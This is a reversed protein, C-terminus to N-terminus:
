ASKRGDMPVDLRMPWDRGMGTVVATGCGCGGGGLREVEALYAETGHHPEIWLRTRIADRDVTAVLQQGATLGLEQLSGAFEGWYHSAMQARTFDMLLTEAESRQHLTIERQLLQRSLNTQFSRTTGHDLSLGQRPEILASLGM